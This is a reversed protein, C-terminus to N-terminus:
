RCRWEYRNVNLRPFYSGNVIDRWRMEILLHWCGNEKHDYGLGIHNKSLNLTPRIM